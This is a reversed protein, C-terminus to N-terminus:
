QVFRDVHIVGLDIWRRAGMDEFSIPSFKTTLLLGCIGAIYAIHAYQLIYKYNVASIGTYTGIGIVIWFLQRKWHGGQYSIQASYIFMLGVLCLVLICLPNVIDFRLREGPHM